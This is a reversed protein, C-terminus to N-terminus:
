VYQLVGIFGRVFCFGYISAIARYLWRVRGRNTFSEVLPSSLQFTGLMLMVIYFMLRDHDSM